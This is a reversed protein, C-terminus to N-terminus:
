LQVGPQPQQCQVPRLKMMMAPVKRHARNNGPHITNTFNSSVAINHRLFTTVDLELDTDHIRLFGGDAVVLGEGRDGADGALGAVQAGGGDAPVGVFEHRM